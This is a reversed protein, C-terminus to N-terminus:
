SDYEDSLSKESISYFDTEFEACVVARGTGAIVSTIVAKGSTEVLFSRNEYGWDSLNFTIELHRPVTLVSGVLLNPLDDCLLGRKYTLKRTQYNWSFGVVPKLDILGAADKLAVDFGQIPDMTLVRSGFEPIQARTVMDM